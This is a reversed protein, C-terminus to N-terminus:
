PLAHTLNRRVQAPRTNAAVMMGSQDNPLASSQVMAQHLITYNFWVLTKLIIQVGLIDAARCALASFPKM